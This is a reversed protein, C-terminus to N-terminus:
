REGKEMKQLLEELHNVVGYHRNAFHQNRAIVIACKTAAYEGNDMILCHTELNHITKM